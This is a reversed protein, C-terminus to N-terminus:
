ARGKKMRECIRVAAVLDQAAMGTFYAIGGSGRLGELRGCAADGITLVRGEDDRVLSIEDHRGSERALRFEGSKAAQRPVDVVVPRARLLDFDLQVTRPDGAM